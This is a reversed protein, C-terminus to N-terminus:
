LTLIHKQVKMKRADCDLYLVSQLMRGTIYRTFIYVVFIILSLIYITNNDKLVGIWMLAVTGGGLVLSNLLILLYHIKVCTDADFKYYISHKEYSCWVGVLLYYYHPLWM